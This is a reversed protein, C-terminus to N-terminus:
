EQLRVEQWQPWVNKTKDSLWVKRWSVNPKNTHAAVCKLLAEIHWNQLLLKTRPRCGWLGHRHLVPKLTSLAPTGAAELDHCIQAKTTGPKNRFMRPLKSDYLHSLKARRGSRPFTIVLKFLKSFSYYFKSLVDLWYNSPKWTKVRHTQSFVWFLNLCFKGMSMVDKHICINLRAM